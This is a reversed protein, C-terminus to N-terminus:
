SAKLVENLLNANFIGEINLPTVAARLVANEEIVANIALTPFFKPPIPKTIPPTMVAKLFKKSISDLPNLQIFSTKINNPIAKVATPAIINPAGARTAAATAPTTAATAVKTITILSLQSLTFSKM